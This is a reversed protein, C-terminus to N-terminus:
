PRRLRYFRNTVGTAVTQEVINTLGNISVLESTDSWM